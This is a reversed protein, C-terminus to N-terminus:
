RRYKISDYDITEYEIMRKRSSDYQPSAISNEPSAVSTHVGAIDLLLDPFDYTMVPKDVAYELASAIQPHSRRYTDTMYIILPVRFLAEAINADVPERTRGYMLRRDHIEEGHDSFYIVIANRGSVSQMVSAVVSDNYATANDFHMIESKAKEDCYAPLSDYHSLNFRATHPPYRLEALVHQGMLHFFTVSGPGAALCQPLYREVFDGDYRSRVDNRVDISQRSVLTDNLFYVCSYDGSECTSPTSQNDFFLVKYGARRLVAPLLPRNRWARDLVNTSLLRHMVPKTTRDGTVVDSFVLLRGSCTDAALASMLPNTPLRYGYLSSHSRNFSEGIVVVIEASDVKCSDIAIESNARAIDDVIDRTSEMHRFSNVLQGPTFMFSQSLSDDLPQLLKRHCAFGVIVSLLVFGTTCVSAPILLKPMRQRLRECLVRNKLWKVLPPTFGLAIVVPVAIWLLAIATGQLGMAYRIFECSEGGDSQLVLEVIGENLRCMMNYGIFFEIYCFIGLMILAVIELSRTTVRVGKRGSNLGVDVLATLIWAPAFAEIFGAAFGKISIVGGPYPAVAVPLAIFALFLIFEPLRHFPRLIFEAFKM